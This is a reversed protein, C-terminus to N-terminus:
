LWPAFLRGGNEDVEHSGLIIGDMRALVKPRYDAM